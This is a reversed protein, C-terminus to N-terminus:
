RGSRRTWRSHARRVYALREEATAYRRTFWSVLSLVQEREDDDIPRELERNIEAPSVPREVEVALADRKM